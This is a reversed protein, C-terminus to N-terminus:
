SSSIVIEFTSYNEDISSEMIAERWDEDVVPLTLRTTRSLWSRLSEKWKVLSPRRAVSAWPLFAM